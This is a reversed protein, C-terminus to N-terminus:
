DTLVWHTNFDATWKAVAGQRNIDQVCIDHDPTNLVGASYALNTTGTEVYIYTKESHPSPYIYSTLRGSTSEPEPIVAALSPLHQKMRDTVYNEQPGGILWLNKTALDTETVEVDSLIQFSGVGLQDSRMGIRERVIMFAREHLHWLSSPNKTGYVIALPGSEIRKAPGAYNRRKNRTEKGLRRGTAWDGTELLHYVEPNNPKASLETTRQEDVILTLPFANAPFTEFNLSLTSVNDTVLKLEHDVFSGHLTAPEGWVQIEDISVWYSHGYDPTKTTFRIETPWVPVSHQAIPPPAEWPTFNHRMGKLEEYHGPLELRQLSRYLRRNSQTVAGDNEGAILFIPCHLLNQLIEPDASPKEVATWLGEYNGARGYVWAFRDPHNLALGLATAAGHSGGYVAVKHRDVPLVPLLTDWFHPLAEKELDENDSSRDFLGITFWDGMFPHYQGNKVANLDSEIFQARNRHHGLGYLVIRAPYKKTPDYNWPPVIKIPLWSGDIKSRWARYPFEVGAKKGKLFSQAQEVFLNIKDDYIGPRHFSRIAKRPARVGDPGSCLLAASEKACAKLLFCIEREPSSLRQIKADALSADIEAFKQAARISIRTQRTWQTGASLSLDISLEDANLSSQMLPHRKRAIWYRGSPSLIWPISDNVGITQATILLRSARLDLYTAPATAEIELWPDGQVIVEEARYTIEEASSSSGVLQVPSFAIPTSELKNDRDINAAGVSLVAGSVADVRNVRMSLAFWEGVEARFPGVLNWPILCEISWGDDFVASAIACAGLHDNQVPKGDPGIQEFRRVTKDGGFPRFLLHAVGPTEYRELRSSGSRVDIFVDLSDGSWPEDSVEPTRKSYVRLAISLGHPTWGKRVIASLYMESVAGCGVVEFPHGVWETLDGDVIGKPAPRVLDRDPRGVAAFVSAGGAPFGLVFCFGLTLILTLHRQSPSM